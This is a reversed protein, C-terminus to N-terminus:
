RELGIKVFPVFVEDLTIGGHTLGWEGKPAFAGRGHPLVAWLGAPLLGDDGWLYTEPLAGQTAEALVRNPYLRARLGRSLATLGERPQGIGVAAVNGHDSTLWVSFGAGLLADLAVLITAADTDRWRRLAAQAASTGLHASHCLADVATFVLCAARIETLDPLTKPDRVLACAHASLGQSTWFATWSQAERQAHALLAERTEPMRGGILASRSVATITPVHAALVRTECQWGRRSRWGEWLVKWDALSMGDLIVLAVRDALANRRQAALYHPVHFLLHPAPLGQGALTPYSRQLWAAFAADLRGELGLCAQAEAPPLEGEPHARLATLTAWDEAIRAWDAFRQPAHELRSAISEVLQRALQARADGLRLAPSGSWVPLLGARLWDPLDGRRQFQASESLYLDKSEALTRGAGLRAQLQALLFDGLREPHDLLAELPWDAYAEEARLRELLLARLRPGLPLAAAAGSLWRVLTLPNGLADPDLDYVRRLLYGFTAAEGLRDAPPPAALLRARGAPPLEAVLAQVLHPFLHAASLDVKAGRQWLDFPLANLTGRTVILHPPRSTAYAHRLHIPDAHDLIAYGHEERLTSRTAEDLVGDPDHVLILPAGVPLRSLVATVM